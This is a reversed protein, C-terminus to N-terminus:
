RNLLHRRVTSASMGSKMWLIITSIKQKSIPLSYRTSYPLTTMYDVLVKGFDFILNKIM